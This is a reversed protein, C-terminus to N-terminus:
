ALETDFIKVAKFWKSFTDIFVQHEPHTQYTNHDDVSDFELFLAYDFDNQTAPRDPTDAATGCSGNKVVEMDFLARMGVVFEQKQVSSLSEDLWFYVSHRIM